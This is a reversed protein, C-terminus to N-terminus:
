HGDVSRESCKENLKETVSQTIDVSGPIDPPVNPDSLDMMPTKGSWQIGKILKWLIRSKGAHIEGSIGSYHIFVEDLDVVAITPGPVANSKNIKNIVFPSAILLGVIMGAIWEKM